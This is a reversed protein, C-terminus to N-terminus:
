SSVIPSDLTKSFSSCSPPTAYYLDEGHSEVQVDRRWGEEVGSKVSDEMERIVPISDPPANDTSPLRSLRRPTPYCVSERISNAVVRHQGVEISRRSM